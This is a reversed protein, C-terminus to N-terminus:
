WESYFREDELESDLFQFILINLGMIKGTRKYPHSVQDNM